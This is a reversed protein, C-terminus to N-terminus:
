IREWEESHDGKLKAHRAAPLFCATSLNMHIGSHILSYLSTLCLLPLLVRCCSIRFLDCSLVRESSTLSASAGLSLTSSSFLTVDEKSVTRPFDAHILCSMSSAGQKVVETENELFMIGKGKIGQLHRSEHFIVSSSNLGYSLLKGWKAKLHHGNCNLFSPQLKASSSTVQSM